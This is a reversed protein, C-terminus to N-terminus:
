RVRQGFKLFGHKVHNTLGDRSGDEDLVMGKNEANKCVHEM